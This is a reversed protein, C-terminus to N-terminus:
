SIAGFHEGDQDVISGDHRVDVEVIFEEVTMADGFDRQGALFQQLREIMDEAIEREADARTSYVVPMGMEDHEIPIPGDCVTDIYICFGARVPAAFSM